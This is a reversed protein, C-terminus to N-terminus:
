GKGSARSRAMRESRTLNNEDIHSHGTWLGMAQTEVLRHSRMHFEDGAGCTKMEDHAFKGRLGRLMNNQVFHAM